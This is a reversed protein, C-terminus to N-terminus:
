RASRPPFCTAVWGWGAESRMLVVSAVIWRTGFPDKVEQDLAVDVHWTGGDLYTRGQALPCVFDFEGPKIGLKGADTVASVAGNRNLTAPVPVEPGITIGQEGPIVDSDVCHRLIIRLEDDSVARRLRGLSRLEDAEAYTIDVSTM